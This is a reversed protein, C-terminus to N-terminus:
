YSIFSLYQLIADNGGTATPSVIQIYYEGVPCDEIGFVIKSSNYSPSLTLSKTYAYDANSIKTPIEDISDASIFNFTVSPSIWTSVFYQLQIFSSSSTISLPSTFYFNSNSKDTKFSIGVAANNTTDTASINLYEYTSLTSYDTYEGATDVYCSSGYATVIEDASTMATTDFVLSEGAINDSGEYTGEIGFISVGSKINSAILNSDGSIVINSSVLKNATEITIDETSPIYPNSPTFSDSESSDVYTGTILEGNVYATKGNIIDAAAATADSTFSGEIGFITTGVKINDSTLNSDGLITQDGSLYVGSSIVQNDTSPTITQAAQSQITGTIKGTSTYATVGDLLDSATATADSTNTGTGTEINLVKPVLTNLTEDETSTQGMTTLNAALQKKQKVLETLQEAITTM